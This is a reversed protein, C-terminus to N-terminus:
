RRTQTAALQSPRAGGQESRQAWAAASESSPASTSAARNASLRADPAPKPAVLHLLTVHLPINYAPAYPRIANMVERLKASADVDVAIIRHYCHPDGDFHKPATSYTFRFVLDSSLLHADTVIKSIADFHVPDFGYLLTLHPRASPDKTAFPDLKVTCGPLTRFPFSEAEVRGMAESPVTVNLGIWNKDNKDDVITLPVASM